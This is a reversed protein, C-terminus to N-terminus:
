LFNGPRKKSALIANHKDVIKEAQLKVSYIVFESLTKFGGLDAAQEFFEKMEVSLRTDFRTTSAAKM